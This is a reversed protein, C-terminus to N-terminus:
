CTNMQQELAVLGTALADIRDYMALKSRWEAPIGQEGYSAGALQGAIAATTDADDGLNAAALVCARYDDTSFFAWLAAELAPVVYGNGVIES